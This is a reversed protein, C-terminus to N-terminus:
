RSLKSLYQNGALRDGVKGTSKERWLQDFCIRFGFDDEAISIHVLPIHLTREPWFTTPLSASHRTASRNLVRNVPQAMVRDQVRKCKDVVKRGSPALHHVLCPSVKDPSLEASLPFLGVVIVKREDATEYRRIVEELVM